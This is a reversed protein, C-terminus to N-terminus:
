RPAQTREGIDFLPLRGEDDFRLNLAESTPWLANAIDAQIDLVVPYHSDIEAPEFDIHIIWTSRDHNWTNWVSPSSGATKAVM